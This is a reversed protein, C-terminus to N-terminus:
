FHCYVSDNAQNTEYHGVRKRPGPRSQELSVLPEPIASESEDRTVGHDPADNVLTLYKPSTPSSSLDSQFSFSSSSM